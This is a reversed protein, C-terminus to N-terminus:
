TSFVAISMATVATYTLVGQGNVDSFRDTAFPGIIREEGAAVIVAVPHNVGQNCNVQSAVTVTHSTADANKVSIFTRGNNIFTDGVACANHALLGGTLSPTQTPQIAM